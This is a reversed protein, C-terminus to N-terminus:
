HEVVEQHQHHYQHQHHRVLSPEEGERSNAASKKWRKKVESVLRAALHGSKAKFASPKSGKIDWYKVSTTVGSSIDYCRLQHRLVQCGILSWSKKRLWDSYETRITKLTISAWLGCVAPLQKSPESILTVINTESTPPCQKSPQALKRKHWLGAWQWVKDM